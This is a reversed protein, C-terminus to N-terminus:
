RSADPLYWAPTIQWINCFYSAPACDIMSNGEAFIHAESKTLQFWTCIVSSFPTKYAAKIKCNMDIISRNKNWLAITNVPCFVATFWVAYCQMSVEFTTGFWKRLSQQNNDAPGAFRKGVVTRYRYLSTFFVMLRFVIIYQGLYFVRWVLSLEGRLHLFTTEITLIKFFIPRTIDSGYQIEWPPM